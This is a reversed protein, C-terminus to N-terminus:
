ERYGEIGRSGGEEVDGSGHEGKLGCLVVGWVALCRSGEVGQVGDERRKPVATGRGARTSQVRETHERCMQWMPKREGRLEATGDFTFYFGVRTGVVAGVTVKAYSTQLTTAAITRCEVTTGSTWSATGCMDVGTASTSATFSYAGFNLGSITM